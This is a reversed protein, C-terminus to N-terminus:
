DTKHVKNHCQSMIAGIGQAEKPTTNGVNDTPTKNDNLQNTIDTNVVSVGHKKDRETRLDHVKQKETPSLKEWASPAYYGDTLKRRKNEQKNPRNSNNLRGRNPYGQPINTITNLSSIRAKRTVASYSVKSDLAQFLFNTANKLHIMYLKCQLYRTKPLKSATTWSGMLSFELKEKRM